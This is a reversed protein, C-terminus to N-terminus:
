YYKQQAEKFVKGITMKTCHGFEIYNAEKM